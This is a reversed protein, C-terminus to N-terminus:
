DLKTSSITILINVVERAPHFIAAEILLHAIATLIFLISCFIVSLVAPYINCNISMFVANCLCASCYILIGDFMQQDELRRSATKLFHRLSTKLVYEGYCNLKKFCKIQSASKRLYYFYSIGFRSLLSSM